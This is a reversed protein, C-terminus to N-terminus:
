LRRPILGSRIGHDALVLCVMSEVIPVARPVVCPDHRGEIKIKSSRKSKLNITNQSLGISATPKIYARVVIPMGNSIGGNIGGALNTKTCVKKNKWIFEDNAESGKLCSQVFGEGVEVAKVAPISMLAKALDADLKDFVPEGLGAPVGCAIVEVVGGVSDRQRKAALIIEEMEAAVLGNPCRVNNKETKKRLSSFLSPKIEGDFSLGGIERAFGLIDIKFEALLKRAVAGGAVRGVTERASARGGGRFDVNGFKAGWTYDAHGPRPTNILKKYNKSDVDKNKVAISIPTGLTKGEFVGSLIEARDKESRITTLKSQGPRRRALEKQIDNLTLRLGAPCGDVVCGVSPGHSEGWTTLQFMKGFTNDM